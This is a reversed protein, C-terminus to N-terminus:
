CKMAICCGGNGAAGSHKRFYLCLCLSRGYVNSEDNDITQMIRKTLANSQCLACHANSMHFINLRLQSLEGESEYKAITKM